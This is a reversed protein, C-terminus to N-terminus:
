KLRVATRIIPDVQFRLPPLPKCCEGQTTSYRSRGGFLECNLVRLGVMPMSLAVLEALEPTFEYAAIWGRRHHSAGEADVTMRKFILRSLKSLAEDPLAQVVTELDAELLAVAKALEAGLQERQELAALQREAGEKRELLELNKDRAREMTIAGAVIADDLRKVGAEVELFEARYREARNAVPAQMEQAAEQIYRSLDLRNVLLDSVFPVVARRVLTESVMQGRCAAKGSTHYARCTYLRWEKMEGSARRKFQRMGVLPTGCHVCRLLGSFAFPSHVSRPAMRYRRRRIEQCRNFQEVSIIQLHPVYHTTPEYDRTFRSRSEERWTLLGAYLKTGIIRNIDSSKFFRAADGATRGRGPSKVPFRYGGENLYLAVKRQSMREYLDFILRVVEAEGEDIVLSADKVKHGSEDLHEWRYGLYPKTPLMKGQRAKEMMGRVLARVNQRKQIKGIFFGIDALDDDLDQTFDYTREPTVILCDNDRCVQRIIRGDIGDEDRSLRTCDQCIIAAVKGAEIDELLQKMIPRNTLHEGSKVERRLEWPLGMREALESLRAADARAYNDAQQPRSARDYIVAIRQQGPESKM